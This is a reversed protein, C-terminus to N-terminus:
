RRRETRERRDDRTERRDEMQETRDEGLERRTFALDAEMSRQFESLLARKEADAGSVEKTLTFTHNEIESLIKKQRALLAAQNAFDKQDDRLDRKDGARDLRDANLDKREGSDGDPTLMDRRDYRVERRDSRVESRSGTIERQDQRKKAEGQEVERRMQVILDSKIAEIQQINVNEWASSFDTLKTKYQELEMADREIIANGANIQARGQAREAANRVPQANAQVLFAATLIASYFLNKM